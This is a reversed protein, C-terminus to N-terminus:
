GRRNIRKCASATAGKHTVRYCRTGSRTDVMSFTTHLHLVSKNKDPMSFRCPVIFVPESPPIITWERFFAFSFGKCTALKKSLCSIGKINGVSGSQFTGNLGQPNDKFFQVEHIDWNHVGPTQIFPMITCKLPEILLFSNIFMPFVLNQNPTSRIIDGWRRQIFIRLHVGSLIRTVFINRLFINRESFREFQCFITEHGIPFVNQCRFDFRAFLYQNSRMSISQSSQDFM